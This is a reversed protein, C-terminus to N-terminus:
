LWRHKLSYGGDKDWGSTDGNRGRGEVKFGDPFLARGLSYVIEFGMDMGAGSIQVGEARPTRKLDLIKSVLYDIMLPENDKIVIISIRRSMGSASVHRLITYVTDGVKVLEKLENLANTRDETNKM